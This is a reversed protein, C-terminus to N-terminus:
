VKPDNGCPIQGVENQYNEIEGSRKIEADIHIMQALFISSGLAAFLSKFVSARFPYRRTNGAASLIRRKGQNSAQM